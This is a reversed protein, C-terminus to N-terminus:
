ALCSGQLIDGRKVRCSREGAPAQAQAGRATHFRRFPGSRGDRRGEGGSCGSGFDLRSPLSCTWDCRGFVLCGDWM